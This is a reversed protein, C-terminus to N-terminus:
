KASNYRPADKDIIKSAFKLASALTKRQQIQVKIGGRIPASGGPLHEKIRAVVRGRIAVGTFLNQGKKDKIKYVLSKNKPLCEIGDETLAVTKMREDAM